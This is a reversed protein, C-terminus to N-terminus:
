FPEINSVRVPNWKIARYDIAATAAYQFCKDDENKLNITAKKHKTWDFSEIYSGRRKFKDQCKYYLLQVSNFIFNRERERDRERENINRFWNPTEFSHRSFNMLLMMQMIM